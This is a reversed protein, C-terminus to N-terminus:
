DPCDPTGVEFGGKKVGIGLLKSGCNPPDDEHGIKGMKVDDNPAEPVPSLIALGPNSGVGTCFWARGPLWRLWQVVPGSWPSCTGKVRLDPRCNAVLRVDDFRALDHGLGPGCPVNIFNSSSSAGLIIMDCPTGLVWISAMEPTMGMIVMIGVCAWWSMMLDSACEPCMGPDNADCELCMGPDNSDCEPCIGVDNSDFEM